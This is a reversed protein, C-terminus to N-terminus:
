GERSAGGQWPLPKGCLDSTPPHTSPTPPSPAKAEGGTICARARKRWSAHIPSPPTPSLPPTPIPPPPPLPPPTRNQRVGVSARITVWISHDFGSKVWPEFHEGQHPSSGVVSLDRIRIYAVGFLPALTTAWPHHQPHCKSPGAPSAVMPARLPIQRLHMGHGGFERGM